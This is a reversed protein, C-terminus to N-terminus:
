LLSDSLDERRSLLRSAKIVHLFINQLSRVARSKMSLNTIEKKALPEMFGVVKGYQGSGGTQKKHTYDFPAM